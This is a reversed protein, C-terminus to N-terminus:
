AHLIALRIMSASSYSQDKNADEGGRLIWKCCRPGTLPPDGINLEPRYCLSCELCQLVCFYIQEIERAAVSATCRLIRNSDSLMRPVSYLGWIEPRASQKNAQWEVETQQQRMFRYSAIRRRGPSRSKANELSCKVIYPKTMRPLTSSVGGVKAGCIVFGHQFNGNASVRVSQPANNSPSEFSVAVYKTWTLALFICPGMTGCHSRLVESEDISPIQSKSIGLKHWQFQSPMWEARFDISWVGSSKM